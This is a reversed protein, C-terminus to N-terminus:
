EYPINLMLSIMGKSIEYCSHPVYSEFLEIRIITIGRFCLTITGPFGSPSKSEGFAYTSHSLDLTSLSDTVKLNRKWELLDRQLRLMEVEEMVYHLYQKEPLHGRGVELEVRYWKKDESVHGPEQGLAIQQIRKLEEQSQAVRGRHAAHREQDTAYIKKRGM